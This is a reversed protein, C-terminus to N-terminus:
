RGSIFTILADEAASNASSHMASLAVIMREFNVRRSPEQETCRDILRGVARLTDSHITPERYGGYGVLLRIQSASLGDYPKRGTIMQQLLVGFSFVDSRADIGYPCFPSSSRLSEPALYLLNNPNFQRVCTSPHFLANFERVFYDTLKVDIVGDIMVNSPKMNKHAFGQKRLYACAVAVGKALHLINQSSLQPSPTTTRTSKAAAGVSQKTVFQELSGNVVYETVICLKKLEDSYSAAMFLCINPHRIRAMRSLLEMCKPSMKANSYVRVVVEKGLWLGKYLKPCRPCQVSSSLLSEFRLQDYAIMWGEPCSPPRPIYLSSSTSTFPAAQQPPTLQGGSSLIRTRSSNFFQSSPIDRESKRERLFRRELMTPTRPVYEELQPVTSPPRSSQVTISGGDVTCVNAIGDVTTMLCQGTMGDDTWSGEYQVGDGSLLIGFGSRTFGSLGGFYCAGDPYLIGGQDTGEVKWYRTTLPKDGLSVAVSKESESRDLVNGM